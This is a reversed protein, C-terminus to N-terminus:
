LCMLHQKPVALGQKGQRTLWDLLEEELQKIHPKPSREGIPRLLARKAMLAAKDMTGGIGVGIVIPPCPNGGAQYRYGCCVEQGWCEKWCAEADQSCVHEGALVKQLWWQPAASRRRGPECACRCPYQGRHKRARSSACLVTAFISIKIGKAFEKTSQRVLLGGTIHVDQGVDAFVVVMGTDQCLAM